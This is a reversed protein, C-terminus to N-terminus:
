FDAAIVNVCVNEGATSFATAFTAEITQTNDSLYIMPNGDSDTPLGPWNTTSMMNVVPTSAAFGSSAALTASAGAGCTGNTACHDTTSTSHRVTFLHSVDDNTGAWIAIIKSGDADGTYIAKYTGASDTGQIFCTRSNKLVQPFIPTTVPAALVPVYFSALLLAAIFKRRM